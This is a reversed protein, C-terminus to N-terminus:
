KILKHHNSGEVIRQLSMTGREQTWYVYFYYYLEIMYGNLDVGEIFIVIGNPQGLIVLPCYIGISGFPGFAGGLFVESHLLVDTWAEILLGDIVGGVGATETMVVTFETACLNYVPDYLFIPLEPDLAVELEAWKVVEVMCSATRQGDANIATLVYTTTVDPSVIITGVASVSGAHTSIMVNTSNKVSWSLTSLEDRMIQSPTATFFEITPLILEPVIPQTPTKKKCGPVLLFLFLSLCLFCLLTKRVM